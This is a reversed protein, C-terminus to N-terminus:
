YTVADLESNGICIVTKAPLCVATDGKRSLRGCAVCLKDKCEAKEIWVEGNEAKILLSPATDTRFELKERSSLDITCVTEGNVTVSAELRGDSHSIIPFAIIAAVIVCAIIIIDSRKILVLRSFDTKM